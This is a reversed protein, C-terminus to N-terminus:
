REPLTALLRAAAYQGFQRPSNRVSWGDSEQNKFHALQYRQAANLVSQQGADFVEDAAWLIQRTRVDVLKLRWGVALPAYAQFVTLQCFLVADCGYVRHLSDFFDAPLVEAGTWSSRGTRSRLNERNVAVVEFKKLKALEALLVPNLADCGEPLDARPEECGLPLVAVRQLNLSLTAPYSFTNAPRYEPSLMGITRGPAACGAFLACAALLALRIPNAPNM